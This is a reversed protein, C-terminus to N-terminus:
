DNNPTPKYYCYNDVWEGTKSLRVIIAHDCEAKKAKDLATAIKTHFNGVALQETDCASINDEAFDNHTYVRQRIAYMDTSEGMANHDSLIRPYTCIGACMATDNDVIVCYTALTGEQKLAVGFDNHMRATADEITDFDYISQTEKESTKIVEILKYKAM